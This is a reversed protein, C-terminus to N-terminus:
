GDAVAVVELVKVSRVEALVSAIEDIVTVSAEEVCLPIERM